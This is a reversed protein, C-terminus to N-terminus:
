IGLDDQDHRRLAMLYNVRTDTCLQARRTWPCYAMGKLNLLTYDDRGLARMLESPRIFQDYDHTQRPLLALLYEAAVIARMYAKMTRNMTSLFLYGGPKLLRTIHQLVVEFSTVHELLEMCVIIDFPESEFCTIDSVVYDLHCGTSSAHARAVEIVAPAVDLGTVRAGMMAMSESLIGGGCGVDLIRQDVLSTTELMFQLRTPQIDHLTKLPGETDWWASAHAEFKELESMQTTSQATPM